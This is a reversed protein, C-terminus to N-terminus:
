LQRGTVSTRLRSLRVEGSGDCGGRGRAPGERRRNITSQAAKGPRARTSIELSSFAAAWVSEARCPTAPESSRTREGVKSSGQRPMDSINPPHSGAKPQMRVEGARSTNAPRASHIAVSSSFRM